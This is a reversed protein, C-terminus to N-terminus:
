PKKPTRGSRCAALFSRFPEEATGPGRLFYDAVDPQFPEELWEESRARLERRSIQKRSLLALTDRVRKTLGRLRHQRSQQLAERDLSLTKITVLARPDPEDLDPRWCAALNGFEDIFFYDWADDVTPDLLPGGDAVAPFREGKCNNCIGCAWLLNKWALALKPFTTKPRLHDVQAAESGSCWM